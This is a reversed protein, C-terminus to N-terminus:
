SSANKKGMFTPHIARKLKKQHKREDSQIGKLMSKLKPHERAEEQRAGYNSIAEREDVEDEKLHKKLILKAM